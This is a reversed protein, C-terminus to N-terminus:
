DVTSEMYAYARERRKSYKSVVVLGYYLGVFWALMMAFNAEAYIFVILAIVGYTHALGMLALLWFTLTQMTDACCLQEITYIIAPFATLM